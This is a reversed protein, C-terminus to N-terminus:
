KLLIGLKPILDTTFTNEPFERPKISGLQLTASYRRNLESSSRMVEPRPAGFIASIQEFAITKILKGASSYQTLTQPLLLNRDVSLLMKAYPLGKSRPTLELLFSTDNEELLTPKYDTGYDGLLVDANNFVGGVLSQNLSSRRLEIEGPIHLWVEDEIRLVTRGKLHDPSLILAAAKRDKAKAAYIAFMNKRGNPLQNIIQFFMEFSEPHLNRDVQWLITEADMPATGQDQATAFSFHASLLVCIAFLIFTRALMGFSRGPKAFTTM